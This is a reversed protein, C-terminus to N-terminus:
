SSSPATRPTSSWRTPCCRACARALADWGPAEDRGVTMARRGRTMGPLAPTKEGYGVRRVAGPLAATLAQAVADSCGVTFEIEEDVECALCWARDEPWVLHPEQNRGASAGFWAMAPADRLVGVPGTFLVMTRNPIRVVPAGPVPGTTWGEWIAAYGIEPTTTHGALTALAARLSDSAPEGALGIRVYTEFGPPGYRVLDMWDVGTGILWSAPEADVAPM